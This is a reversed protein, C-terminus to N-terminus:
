SLATEQTKILADANVDAELAAIRWPGGPSVGRVINLNIAGNAAFGTVPVVGIGGKFKLATEDQAMAICTTTLITIALLLASIVNRAPRRESFNGSRIEKM